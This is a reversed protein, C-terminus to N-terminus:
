APAPGTVVVKVAEDPHGALRFAEDLRALPIRHTVLDALELKGSTVLRHVEAIDQETTAYSPVIRVGRLYLDQLDADLHSGAEPLGFLNVTGGGSYNLTTPLSQAQLYTCLEGALSLVTM